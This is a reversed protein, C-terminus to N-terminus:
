AARGESRQWVATRIWPKGAFLWFMGDDIAGMPLLLLRLKLQRQRDADLYRIAGIHWSARDIGKAFSHDRYAAQRLAGRDISYRVHLSRRWRMMWLDGHRM